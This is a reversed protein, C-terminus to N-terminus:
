AARSRRRRENGSRTRPGRVPAPPRPGLLEPDAPPPPPLVEAPLDETIVYRVAACIMLVTLIAASSLCWECYSHISFAERYTLYMSFGFGIVTLGLVALRTEERDRVLLAGAILVYGILGLLAVPVGDLESWVSTQVKVCSQGATCAPKLGAYHIITLYAALAIGIVALVQMARRLRHSM